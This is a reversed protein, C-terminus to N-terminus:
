GGTVSLLALRLAAAPNTIASIGPVVHDRDMLGFGTSAFCVDGGHIDKGRLAWLVMAENFRWRPATAGCELGVKAALWRAWFDRSAPRTLDALLHTHVAILDASTISFRDAHAFLANLMETGEVVAAERLPPWDMPLTTTPDAM